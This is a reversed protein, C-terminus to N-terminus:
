IDVLKMMTAFGAREHTHEPVSFNGNGYLVATGSSAADTKVSPPTSDFV